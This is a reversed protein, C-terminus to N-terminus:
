VGHLHNTNRINVLIAGSASRGRQFFGAGAELEAIMLRMMEYSTHKYVNKYFILPQRGTDICLVLNEEGAGPPNSWPPSRHSICGPVIKLFIVFFSAIFLHATISLKYFVRGSCPSGKDQGPDGFLSAFQPEPSYTHSKLCYNLINVSSAPIALASFRVTQIRGPILAHDGWVKEIPM